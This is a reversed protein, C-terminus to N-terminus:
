PVDVIPQDQTSQDAPVPTTQAPDSAPTGTSPLPAKPVPFVNIPAQEDVSTLSLKVIRRRDATDDPGSSEACEVRDM